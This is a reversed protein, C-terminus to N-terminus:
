KIFFLLLSIRFKAKFRAIANKSNQLVDIKTKLISKVLFLAKVIELTM